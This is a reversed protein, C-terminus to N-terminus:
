GVMGSWGVLTSAISRVGGGYVGAFFSLQGARLDWLDFRLPASMAPVLDSDMLREATHLGKRFLQNVSWKFGESSGAYGSYGATLAEM